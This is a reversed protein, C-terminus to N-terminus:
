GNGEEVDKWHASYVQGITTPKATVPVPAVLVEDEEAYEVVPEKPYAAVEAEFTAILAKAVENLADLYVQERMNKPVGPAEAALSAAKNASRRHAARVEEEAAYRYAQKDWRVFGRGQTPVVITARCGCERNLPKGEVSFNSPGAWIVEGCVGCMVWKPIRSMGHAGTNDM